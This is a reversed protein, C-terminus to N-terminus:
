KAAFRYRRVQQYIFGLLIILLIPVVINILQWKTKENQAKQQDLLRLVIEKNRTAIVDTNGALYELCNLLFDRNAFQYEYQTGITYLNTGMPLPGQQSSVDNLVIDGDAVVIMKNDTSVDKFGGIATLSDRQAATLRGRFFSNFTGELIVAAPINTQKFLADQPTNRNENPSILAPTSITRSNASSQLLITKRLGETQITDVSNVYRGAVLGINKNIAHNSRSEFLPYYNWHLFEYQPQERTGGVAFPLFGCQLDMVLDPNIRVGYNFLLDGINLNREYAIIQSKISLSDEEANLNDIFWLVRGGRMVFQDIKLKEDVTFEETPKVVLLVDFTEPIFKQTKLNFLGLKYNTKANVDFLQPNVSEKPVSQPDITHLLSFSTVDTPQGHGIAYAILTKEPRQMQDITKAFQYEMMAEANNLDAVSPNRKSVPFLNLIETQNGHQILAYPFIVKNEQGAKVQVTVNIPSAGLASISDAWTRGSVVEEQPDIFRYRVKAPNADRLTVLFDETADSLRRFEVPVDGDLFVTILINGELNRLLNHSTPTLSYRKEETLDFRFHILSALVNIIILAALLGIWWFVKRNQKM